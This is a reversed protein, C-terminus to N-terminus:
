QFYGDLSEESCEIWEISQKEDCFSKMVNFLKEIGKFDHNSIVLYGGKLDLCAVLSSKEVLDLIDNARLRHGGYYGNKEIYSQIYKIISNMSAVPKVYIFTSASSESLTTIKITEFDQPEIVTIIEPPLEIKLLKKGAEIEYRYLFNINAKFSADFNLSEIAYGQAAAVENSDFFDIDSILYAPNLVQFFPAIIKQHEYFEFGKVRFCKM